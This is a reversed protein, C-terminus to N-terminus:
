QRIFQRRWINRRGGAGSNLVVTLLKPANQLTGPELKEEVELRWKIKM